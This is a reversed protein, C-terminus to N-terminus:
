RLVELRELARSWVRSRSRRLGLQSDARDEPPLRRAVARPVPPTGFVDVARDARRWALVIRSSGEGPGRVCGARLDWDLIALEVRVGRGDQGSDPVRRLVGAALPVAAVPTGREVLVLRAPPRLLAGIPAQEGPARPGREEASASLSTEPDAERWAAALGTPVLLVLELEDDLRIRQPVGLLLQQEVRTFSEAVTARADPVLERDIPIPALAM